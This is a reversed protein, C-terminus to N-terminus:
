RRGEYWTSGDAIYVGHRGDFGVAWGRGNVSKVHRLVIPYSPNGTRSWRGEHGKWRYTGNRRIVLKDGWGTGTSTTQTVTTGDDTEYSTGPVRTKWAGFYWRVPKAKVDSQAPSPASGPNPAVPEAAPAPQVDDAHVPDVGQAQVPQIDGAAASSPLALAACAAAALVIRTM